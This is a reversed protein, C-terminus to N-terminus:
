SPFDMSIVQLYTKIPFDDLIHPGEMAVNVQTYGKLIISACGYIKPHYCRM